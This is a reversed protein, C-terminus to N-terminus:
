DPYAEGPRIIRIYHDTFKFHAQPPEQKKMHCSVCNNTGVKCSVESGPRVRAVESSKSQTVHCALCKKDYYASDTSVPEHPDHCATCRIRRDDSYCKSKFIRYPQFRINNVQLFRLKEFDSIARHCSSCFEQSLEDGSLRTPNFILDKAPRKAQIETAHAGGPGHCTECSIGTIVEEFNIEGDDLSLTGHCEFCNKTEQESLRRGLADKLSTPADHSAGVTLNLNGVEDYFSVLSQYLEGEYRFLYTQGAKGQGFAYLIPVTVSENGDTVTYLSQKANRKIEYSYKGNRFSLVPNATLVRSNAVDEMALKM